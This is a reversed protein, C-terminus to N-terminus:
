GSWALRWDGRFDRVLLLGGGGRERTVRFTEPDYEDNNGHRAGTNLITIVAWLHPSSRTSLLSQLHAMLTGLQKESLAARKSTKFNRIRLKPVEQIHGDQEALRLLRILLSRALNATRPTSSMASFWPEINAATLTHMPEQGFTPQINDRRETTPESIAGNRLSRFHSGTPFCGNSLLRMGGHIWLRRWVQAEVRARLPTVIVCM